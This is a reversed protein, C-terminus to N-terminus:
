PYALSIMLLAYHLVYIPIDAPAVETLGIKAWCIELSLWHFYTFTGLAPRHLANPLGLSSYLPPM